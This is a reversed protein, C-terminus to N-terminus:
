ARHSYWRLHRGLDLRLDLNNVDLTTSFSLRDGAALPSWVWTRAVYTLVGGVRHEKHTRRSSDAPLQFTTKNRFHFVRTPSASGRTLTGKVEVAQRFWRGLM